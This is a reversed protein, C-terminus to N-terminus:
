ELYKIFKWRAAKITSAKTVTSWSPLMGAQLGNVCYVSFHVCIAWLFADLYNLPSLNQSTMWQRIRSCNQQHRSLKEFYQAVASLLEDGLRGQTWESSANVTTIPSASIQEWKRPTTIEQIWKDLDTLDFAFFLLPALLYSNMSKGLPCVMSGEDPFRHTKVSNAKPDYAPPRQCPALTM